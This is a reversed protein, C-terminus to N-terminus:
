QTTDFAIGTAASTNGAADRATVTYAVSTKRYQSVTVSYTGGGTATGNFTTTPTPLTRTVVIAAGAEASGSIVDPKNKMDTYSASPADPAVTDKTTSGTKATSVNGAPDSSTADVAVAGEPLSSADIGAVTVTGAGQSATATGSVSVGGGSLTVTVRDASSCGAALTVAVAVSTQGAANVYAGISVATPAPPPTADAVVTAALSALSSLPAADTSRTKITYVYSTGDVTAADTWTTTGTVAAVKTAGRYVDYGALNATTSSAAWALEIAGAPRQSGTLSPPAEPAEAISLAYDRYMWTSSGLRLRLSGTGIGATTTSTTVSVQVTAGAALDATQSGGPFSVSAVQPVGTLALVATQTSATTNKVTFVNTFTRASPVTGFALTLTDVDGAAVKTGSGVQTATGPTVTFYNALRDVTIANPGATKSATFRASSAQVGVGALAVAALAALGLTALSLRRTRM